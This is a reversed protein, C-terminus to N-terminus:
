FGLVVSFVAIIFDLRTAVIVRSSCM